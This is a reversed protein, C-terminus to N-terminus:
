LGGVRCFPQHNPAGFLTAALARAGIELATMARDFRGNERLAEVQACGHRVTTPDRDFGRGVAALGLGFGVHALYMAKQRGRAVPAIGRGPSALPRMSIGLGIAVVSATLHCLCLEIGARDSGFRHNRSYMPCGRQRIFSRSRFYFMNGCTPLM